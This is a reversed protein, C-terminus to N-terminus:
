NSLIKRLFYFKGSPVEVVESTGGQILARNKTSNILNVEKPDWNNEELDNLSRKFDYPREHNENEEKSLLSTGSLEGSWLYISGNGSSFALQGPRIPNWRVSKISTLNIILAVQRLSLMDWIWLVQPM